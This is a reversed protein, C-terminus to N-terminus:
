NLLLQTSDDSLHEMDLICYRTIALDFLINKIYLSISDSQKQALQVAFM